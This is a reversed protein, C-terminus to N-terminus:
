VCLSNYISLTEQAVKQWSFEAARKHGRARYEQRLLNDACMKTIAYTLESVNVPDVLLAANGAIEPISASTSGIVPTGCAMAELVPIGFGEYLSPYLMVEALSYLSILEEESIFGLLAVKERLNLSQILKSFHDIASKSLGVIVLQHTSQNGKHFEAFANIIRVTNKRPDIAGFALIYHELNLSFKALVTRPEASNQRFVTGPAEYIVSLRSEDISLSRVIDSKSYKSITIIRIANKAVIPVVCRLYLRGIRQYLSPSSPLMRGPLMYMVDHITVVLKTRKPLVIPASNGPCHLIDLKDAWVYFPLIVQEWVPYLKFPIIKLNFRPDDPVANIVAKSDAYLIFKHQSTTKALEELLNKIYNGIGRRKSLFRADIGITLNTNLNM